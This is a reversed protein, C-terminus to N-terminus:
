LTLKKTEQRQLMKPFEPRYQLIQFDKDVYICCVALRQSKLLEKM